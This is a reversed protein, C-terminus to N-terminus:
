KKDAADEVELLMNQLTQKSLYKGNVFVANILRVNEINELPNAELLVMDAIKGKEVTGLSDSTGLFKAPNITATQLAEMPTFGAAVFRVLQDLLSFGAVTFSYSGIDTGALFRVGTRHMEGIVEVMLERRKEQNAKQLESSNRQSTSQQWRTTEEKPIYKLRENKEISDEPISPQLLTPCLWTGNEKFHSFLRAAKTKDYTDLMRKVYTPGWDKSQVKRLEQEQSTCYEFIGTFHEISKQGADSADLASVANPVHGAFPIHQKRCEDVIAFYTEPSLEWYVKVFDVGGAKYKDVMQRAEDATSVIDAYKWMSTPGDILAGAAGIRPVTGPREAFQKRWLEVQPMEDLKVWMLRVGTVGNAIFLPFRYQNPPKRNSPDDGNNFIHVHMDWLGPILYKGTEDLVEAGHPMKIIRSKNLDIIRNDKIVITMDPQVPSGTADIVNVHTLVVLASSNNKQANSDTSFLSVSLFVILIAPTNRM